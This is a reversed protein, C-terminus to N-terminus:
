KAAAEHLNTSQSYSCKWDNGKKVWVEGFAARAHMAEGSAKGSYEAIYTVLAVNAGLSKVTFNSFKYDELDLSDMEDLEGEKGAFDNAGDEVMRFDDTLLAAFATKDKKKYDAWEQHVKAELGPVGATGARTNAHQASAVACVALLLFLCLMTRM